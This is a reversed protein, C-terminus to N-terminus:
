NPFSASGKYLDGGSYGKPPLPGLFSSKRAGKTWGCISHTLFKQGLWINATNLQAQAQRKKNFLNSSSHSVDHLVNNTKYLFFDLASELSKGANEVKDRNELTITPRLIKVLLSIPLRCTLFFASLFLIVKTTCPPPSNLFVTVPYM